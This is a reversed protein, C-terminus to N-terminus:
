GLPSWRAAGRARQAWWQALGASGPGASVLRAVCTTRHVVDAILPVPVAGELDVLAAAQEVAAWAARLLLSSSRDDPDLLSEAAGLAEACRLVDAERAVQQLAEAPLDLRVCPAQALTAQVAPRTLDQSPLVEHAPRDLAVVRLTADSGRVVVLWLDADGGHLVQPLLGTLSGVGAGCQLQLGSAVTAVRDGCAIEALVSGAQAATLLRVAMVAGPLFPLAAGARSLTAALDVAELLGQGQGGYRRPVLVGAAGAECLLQWAEAVVSLREAALPDLAVKRLQPLLPELRQGLGTHPAAEAGLITM